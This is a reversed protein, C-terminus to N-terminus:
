MILAHLGNSFLVSSSPEHVAFVYETQLLQSIVSCGTIKAIFYKPLPHPHPSPSGELNPRSFCFVSVAFSNYVACVSTEDLARTCCFFALVHIPMTISALLGHYTGTFMHSTDAPFSCVYYMSVQM